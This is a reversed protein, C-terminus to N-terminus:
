KKNKLTLNGVPLEFLVGHHRSPITCFQPYLDTYFTGFPNSPYSVAELCNVQSQSFFVCFGSPVNTKSFSIRGLVLIDGSFLGEWGSLLRGVM